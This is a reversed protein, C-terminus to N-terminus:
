EQRRKAEEAKKNAEVADGKDTKENAGKSTDEETQTSKKTEKSIADMHEDWHGNGEGSWSHSWYTISHSGWHELGLLLKCKEADFTQESSSCFKEYIFGDRQWSYPYVEHPPLVVLSQPTRAATKDSSPKYLHRWGSKTYHQDLQVGRNGKGGGYQESYRIVQDYLAIPGTMVEPQMGKVQALDRSAEMPLLWFPHGPTSAMWANPISQPEDIDVGMQAVFVKREARVQSQDSPLLSPDQINEIQKAGGGSPHLSHRGEFRM